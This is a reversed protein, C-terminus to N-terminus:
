YVSALVQYINGAYFQKERKARQRETEDQDLATKLKDNLVRTQGVAYNCQKLIQDKSILSKGAIHLLTIEGFINAGVILYGDCFKEEDESPDVFSVTAERFFAFKMLFPFHLMTLRIPERTEFPHVIINGDDVSVDPRRFHALAALASVSSVEILNGEHNLVSVDVQIHWVKEGSIICLAELDICRADRIGKHLLRSLQVCEDSNRSTDYNTSGLMSLDVRINIVGESPRTLRPEALVASIQTLVKSNGVSVLCCGFDPGFSISFPRHQTPQRGDTRVGSKILEQNCKVPIQRM